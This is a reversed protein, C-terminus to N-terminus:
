DAILRIVRREGIQDPFRPATKAAGDQDVAMGHRRCAARGEARALGRDVKYQAVSEARGAGRAEDTQDFIQEGFHAIM